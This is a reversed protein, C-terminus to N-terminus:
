LRTGRAMSRGSASNSAMIAANLKDKVNLLVPLEAQLVHQQNDTTQLKLTFRPELQHLLARSAVQVDLRWDCSTYQRLQDNTQHQLTNRLLSQNDVYAQCLCEILESSLGLTMLSDRFDLDSLALKSSELLVNMVGQICQTVVEAEVELKRAASNCIKRNVGSQLFQMAIRCFETAVALEIDQLFKIQAKIEASLILLM